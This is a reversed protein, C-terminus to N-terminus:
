QKLYHKKKNDFLGEPYLENFSDKFNIIYQILSGPLSNILNIYLKSNRYGGVGLKKSIGM